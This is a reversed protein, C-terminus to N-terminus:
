RVIALKRVLREGGAELRYIYAGPPLARGIADTGSWAVSHEGAPWPGSALRAVERGAIDYVALAVDMAEPLTFGIRTGNVSPNPVAETLQVRTEAPEGDGMAGGRLAVGTPLSAITMPRMMENDEHDVIHCHWVYGPGGPFGFGDNAVGMAATPDFPYLNQGPVVAHGLRETANQPAVRVLVRTVEGPNMRFTDKWGAENPDPLFVPGTRYPAVDPNGGLKNGTTANLTNYALPPGDGPDPAGYVKVYKSTKFAQRDLLQFQFLHLHIPHTDATLNIIEWVETSGVVPTESVDTDWMTNNVFISLPGGAGQNENLTLARTVAPVAPREIPRVRLATTTAPNLSRDRGGTITTGVRIQLITGTTKPDAPAGMPFPAKASNELTLTKGKWASFDVIIDCREGPAMLLHLPNSRKPEQLQVPADLLGGDSGIQWFGPGAGGKNDVLRLDYFRANSGDVIRFRYRRPEVQLYPWTKGNVIIVNGFFEPIWFPHITPNLGAAPWYLQGNTDFMRDQIAIEREYPNGYQDAAPDGSGGPLNAPERGPDRLLYFGALGSYLNTRTAGLAHDHYFLTTAEQGNPYTYLDTVFGPGRHVKGPTWWADPGGDFASPVEGGHLHAVAPVPGAYPTMAGQQGLPDAWHLTQDVAILSQLVPNAGGPGQIANVYHIFAPVGRRAVLTPGPFTQPYGAAKYCWLYSGANWPAALPAYTSAPLLKQQFEHLSIELPAAKTTGTVPVRLPMPMPDVFKPISLPDLPIPQAAIRAPAGLLSLALLSAIGLAATVRENGCHASARPKM